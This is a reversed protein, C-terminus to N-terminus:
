EVLTCLSCPLLRTCITESERALLALGQLGLLAYSVWWLRRVVVCRCMAFHMRCGFVVVFASLRLLVGVVRDLM